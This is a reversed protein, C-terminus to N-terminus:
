YGNTEPDYLEILEYNEELKITNKINKLKKLSNIKKPELDNRLKYIETDLEKIKKTILNFCKEM